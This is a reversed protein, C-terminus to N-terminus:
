ALLSPALGFAVGTLVSVVVAFLVIRYDVAVSINRSLDAPAFALLGLVAWRALVVGFLGGVLGLVVSETILQRIVRGRGAGIAM